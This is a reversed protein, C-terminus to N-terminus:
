ENALKAFERRRDAVPRSIYDLKNKEYQIEIKPIQNKHFQELAELRQISESMQVIKLSDATVKKNLVVNAKDRAEIRDQLRGNEDQLPKVGYRHLFFVTVWVLVVVLLPTKYTM